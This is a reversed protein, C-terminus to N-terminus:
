VNQSPGALVKPVSDRIRRSCFRKKALEQALEATEKWQDKEDLFIRPVNLVTLGSRGDIVSIYLSDGYILSNYWHRGDPLMWRKHNPTDILFFMDSGRRDM